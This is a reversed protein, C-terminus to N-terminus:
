YTVTVPREIQKRNGWEIANGGMERVATTLHFAQEDSLGSYLLLSSLLRNLEELYQTDSKLQFHIEGHAGSQELEKRQAFAHDVAEKLQDITFPKTLYYNAGVRLGRLMDEHQTLATCMVIPTLNTERDLKLEQCIDYGSRGPLMLDLMVLDPKHQRVWDAAATGEGLTTSDFGMQKLVA